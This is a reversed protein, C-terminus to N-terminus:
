AVRLAFDCGVPCIANVTVGKPGLEACAAKTIGIVAHKSADYGYSGTTLLGAVSAINIIRSTGDEAPTGDPKDKMAAKVLYPTCTSMFRLTGLLNVDVVNSVLSVYDNPTQSVISGGGGAIGACNILFDIQSFHAAVEDTTKQVEELQKVDCVWGAATGSGHCDNIEKVM